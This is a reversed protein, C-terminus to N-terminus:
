AKVSAGCHPCVMKDRAVPQRCNPCCFVKVRCAQCFPSEEDMLESDCYPCCLKRPEQEKTSM